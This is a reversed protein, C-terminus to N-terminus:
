GRLTIKGMSRNYRSMRKARRCVAIKRRSLATSHKAPLLCSLLYISQKTYRHSSVLSDSQQQCTWTRQAQMTIM